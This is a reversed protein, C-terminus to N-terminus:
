GQLAAEQGEVGLAQGKSWQTPGQLLAPAMVEQSAADGAHRVM